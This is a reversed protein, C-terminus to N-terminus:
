IGIKKSERNYYLSLGGSLGLFIALFLIVFSFLYNSAIHSLTIHLIVIEIALNETMILSFLYFIFGMSLLQIYALIDNFLYIIKKHSKNLEIIYGDGIKIAVEKHRRKYIYYIWEKFPIIDLIISLTTVICIIVLIILLFIEISNMVTWILLITLFLFIFKIGALTLKISTRDTITLLYYVFGIFIILIGIFISSIMFFFATVLFITGYVRRKSSFFLYLILGLFLWFIAVILSSTEISVIFLISIFIVMITSYPHFPIKFSDETYEETKRFKFLTFCMVVMKIMYSVVSVSAYFEIQGSTLILASIFASLWVAKVPANTEENVTGYRRDMFDKRSLAYVNRSSAMLSIGATALLAFIAGLFVILYILQNGAVADLFAVESQSIASLSTSSILSLIVISYIITAVFLNVLFAKPINKKPNKVEEAISGIDEFGIFINFLMAAATFVPFIGYPMFYDLNWSISTDPRFFLYIAGIILSIILSFTLPIQIQSLSKSGFTNITAMLLLFSIGLPVSFIRNIQFLDLIFYAATQCVLAGYSMNALWTLWGIYLGKEGYAREIFIFGGGSKPYVSILESYVGSILLAFFFGIFLSIIVAPGAIRVTPSILSYIGAGTLSAIGLIVLAFLGIKEGFEDFGPEEEEDGREDLETELETESETESETELETKM